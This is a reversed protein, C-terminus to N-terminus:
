GGLTLFESRSIGRQQASKNFQALLDYPPTASICIHKARPALNLEFRAALGDSSFRELRGCLRCEVRIGTGTKVYM